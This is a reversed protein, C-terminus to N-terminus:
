TRNISLLYSWVEQPSSSPRTAQIIIALVPMFLIGLTPKTSPITRPHCYETVLLVDTYLDCAVSLDTSSFPTFLWLLTHKLYVGNM